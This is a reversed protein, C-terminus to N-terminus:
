MSMTSALIDACQCVNVPTSYLWNIELKKELVMSRATGNMVLLFVMYFCPNANKKKKELKGSRVDDSLQGRAQIQKVLMRFMLVWWYIHLVLLCFLLTNFLYYYVPGEVEYKDKDLTLIVEYSGDLFFTTSLHIYFQLLPFGKTMKFHYKFIIVTTFQTICCNFIAM